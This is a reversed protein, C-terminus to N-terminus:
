RRERKPKLEGSSRRTMGESKERKLYQKPIGLHKNIFEILDKKRLGSYRNLKLSKALSKIQLVTLDDSVMKYSLYIYIYIYIKYIYIYLIELISLESFLVLM